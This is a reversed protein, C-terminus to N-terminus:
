RVHQCASSRDGIAKPLGRGLSYLTAAICEYIECVPTFGKDSLIKLVFILATIFRGALPIIFCGLIATWTLTNSGM